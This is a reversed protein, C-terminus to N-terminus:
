YEWNGVCIEVLHLNHDATMKARFLINEEPNSQRQERVEGKWRMGFRGLCSRSWNGLLIIIITVDTFNDFFWNRSGSNWIIEVLLSLLLTIM